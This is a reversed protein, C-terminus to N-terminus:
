LTIPDFVYLQVLKIVFVKSNQTKKRTLSLLVVFAKLRYFPPQFLTNFDEQIVFTGEMIRLLVEM